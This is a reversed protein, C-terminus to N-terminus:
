RVVSVSGWLRVLCCRFRKFVNESLSTAADHGGRMTKMRMTVQNNQYNSVGKNTQKNAQKKKTKKKEKVEGGEIRRKLTVVEATLSVVQVALATSDKFREVAEAVAPDLLSVDNPSSPPPTPPPIPATLAPDLPINLANNRRPM